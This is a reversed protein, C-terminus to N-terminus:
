KKKKSRGGGSQASDDREMGPAGQTLLREKERKQKGSLRSKEREVRM